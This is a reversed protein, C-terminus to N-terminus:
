WSSFEELFGRIGDFIHCLDGSFDKALIRKVVSLSDSEMIVQHLDLERALLIRAEVALVETEDISFCDPLVRCLAAVAEGRSDRIIVGISLRRGNDVMAGDTNIKFVRAQPKKWSVECASPGLICFKTAKKYDFLMSIAHNWVQEAGEYVAKFM